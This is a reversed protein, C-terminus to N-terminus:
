KVVVVVRCIIVTGMISQNISENLRARTEKASAQDKERAGDIERERERGGCVSMGRADEGRAAVPICVRPFPKM